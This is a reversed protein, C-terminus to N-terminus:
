RTGRSYAELLRTACGDWSYEREVLQRAARALEQHRDADNILTLVAAAFRVPDDEILVHEGNRVKLGACALSTAVVPRGLAMAELVKLPTGGGARLPVVAVRAEAYLPTTDDVRGLLSVSSWAATRVDLPAGAGVVVLKAAPAERRILPMIADGLFRVADANPRYGLNGVFLLGAGPAPPLPRLRVVDVGNPVVVPEIGHRSARLHEADQESVTICRDFRAAWPAEWGRMMFARAGELMRDVMSGGMQRFSDYQAEAVNHLDLVTTVRAGLPVAQVLPALFSHEVQLLDVDGQAILASIRSFIAPHLWSWTAFPYGSRLWRTSTILSRPVPPFSEVRMNGSNMASKAAEADEGEAPFLVTVRHDRAIRTMLEFDRIRAGRDPKWPPETTVWVIHRLRPEVM